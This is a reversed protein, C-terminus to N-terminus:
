IGEKLVNIDIALGKEILGFVDFHWEFLKNLIETTDRLDIFCRMNHHQFRLSAYDPSVYIGDILRGFRVRLIDIPVFKEGNHEIEKTLDSLPHLAMKLLPDNLMQEVGNVGFEKHFESDLPKFFFDEGAWKNHKTDWVKVKYPIYSLVHKLELDKIM